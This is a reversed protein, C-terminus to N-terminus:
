RNLYKVILQRHESLKELADNLIEQAKYVRLELEKAIEKVSYAKDNLTNIGFYMQVVIIELSDLKSLLFQLIESLETKHEQKKVENDSNYDSSSSMWSKHETDLGDDTVYDISFEKSVDRPTGSVTHKAYECYLLVWKVIWPRAYTTFKTDQVVGKKPEFRLAAECLGECGVSYLEQITYNTWKKQYGIAITKALKMADQWEQKSVISVREIEITGLEQYTEEMTERNRLTEKRKTLM